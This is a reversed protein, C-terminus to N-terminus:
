FKVYVKFNPGFTEIPVFTVTEAPTRTLSDIINPLVTKCSWQQIKYEIIPQFENIPQQARISPVGESGSGFLGKALISWWDNNVFPLNFGDIVIM